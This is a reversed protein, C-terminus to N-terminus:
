PKTIKFNAVSTKVIYVKGSQASMNLTVNGNADSLSSDILIGDATYIEVKSSPEINTAQLTNKGFNFMANSFKADIIESLPVYAYTFKLVDSSRYSVQNMHTTMVLEDDNFTVVPREDLLCTIQKGSALHLCLANIEEASIKSTCFLFGLLFLCKMKM